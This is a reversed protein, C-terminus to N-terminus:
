GRGDGRYFSPSSKGASALFNLEKEMLFGAVAPLIPGGRDGLCARSSPASPTTQTMEALRSLSRAFNPENAEEEPHFRLNELM